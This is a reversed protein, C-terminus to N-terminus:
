TAPLVQPAPPTIRVKRDKIIPAKDVLVEQSASLPKGKASSETESPPPTAKQMVFFCVGVNAKCLVSVRVSGLSVPLTINLQICLYSIKHTQIPQPPHCLSLVHGAHLLLALGSSFWLDHQMM